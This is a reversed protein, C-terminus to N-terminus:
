GFRAELVKTRYDFIGALQRRVTLNILGALPGGYLGYHIKDRMRVGTEIAEFHHQHHWFRYPGFRQEDIFRHPRDVQTIETVWRVPIGPFPRVRYAILMGAYMREPLDSTVEFGMSPPTIEKMNAPNSCFSWAEEPTLSLEQTHEFRYLKM